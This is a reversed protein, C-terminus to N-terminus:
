KVRETKYKTLLWMSLFVPIFGGLPTGIMRLIWYQNTPGDVFLLPITLVLAVGISLVLCYKLRPITTRKWVFWAATYFLLVIPLIIHGKMLVVIPLGLLGLLGVFFLGIIGAGMMPALVALCALQVAFRLKESRSPDNEM